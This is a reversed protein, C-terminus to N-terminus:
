WGFTVGVRRGTAAVAREFQCFRAMDFDTAVLRMAGSGLALAITGNAQSPIVGFLTGVDAEV